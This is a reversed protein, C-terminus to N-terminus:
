HTCCRTPSFAMGPQKSMSWNPFHDSDALACRLTDSILTNVDTESLNKLTLRELNVKTKQLEAVSMLLPHTADVENDRYAGIVLFHTLDPDTLLAKLLNLSAADIWQLDDLFIVLPHEKKAIAKIFNQFVYNFRNQAEVGGLEPMDPQPGIVLELNAIVDTLVRGNPGVTDLILEKWAALRTESEMLLHNVFESFAREWAFYPTNRQYQDFKGEIFYGRKGIIPKDVEHILASKGTGSYGAVLFLEAAGAAIRDYSDLLTKLEDERGYLKQPIQFLGSFDSEGLEFAEISGSKTLQEVCRELDHQLGFASQYREEADKELLRMVINSIPEPVKARREHPPTASKAIHSHIM